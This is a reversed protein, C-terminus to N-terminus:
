SPPAGPTIGNGALSNEGSPAGNELGAAELMKKMASMTYEAILPDGEFDGLACQFKAYGQPGPGCKALEVISNDGGLYVQNVIIDQLAAHKMQLEIGEDEPHSIRSVSQQIQLLIEPSQMKSAVQHMYNRADVISMEPITDTDIDFAKAVLTRWAERRGLRITLQVQEDQTDDLFKSFDRMYAMLGNEDTPYGFGTVIHLQTTFYIEMMMQWKQVVPMNTQKQLLELRQASVGYEMYAQMTQQLAMAMELNVGNAPPQAQFGETAPEPISSSLWRNQQVFRTSTRALNVSSRSGSRLSGTTQLLRLSSKWASM